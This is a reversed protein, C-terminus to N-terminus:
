QKSFPQLHIFFIYKQADKGLPDRENVKNATLPIAKKLFDFKYNM